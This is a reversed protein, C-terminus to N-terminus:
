ASLLCSGLELAILLFLPSLCVLKVIFVFMGLFFQIQNLREKKLMQLLIGM